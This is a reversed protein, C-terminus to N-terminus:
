TGRIVPRYLTVSRGPVVTASSIAMISVGIVIKRGAMVAGGSSAPRGATRRPHSWIAEIFRQEAEEGTGTQDLIAEVASVALSEHFIWNRPGLREYFRDVVAALHSLQQEVKLLESRQERAIFGTLLKGGEIQSAMERYSPLDRASGYPSPTPERTTTM